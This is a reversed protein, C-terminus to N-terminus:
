QAAETALHAAHIQGVQPTLYRALVAPDMGSRCEPGIGVTKSTADRLPRGCQCCRIGFEAFRRGAAVPDTLIADVVRTLYAARVQSWATVFRERAAPDAPVDARRPVPPGYSAKAPWPKLGDVKATIVRRWYIVTDPATPDHVAYYGEAIGGLEPWDPPLTM